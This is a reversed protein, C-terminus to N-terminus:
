RTARSKRWGEAFALMKGILFTMVGPQLCKAPVITVPRSMPLLGHCLDDPALIRLRLRQGQDLGAVHDGNRGLGDIAERGIRGVASRNRADELGLASWAEVRQDRM